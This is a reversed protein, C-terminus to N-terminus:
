IYAKLSEKILHNEPNDLISNLFKTTDDKLETLKLQFERNTKILKFTSIAIDFLQRNNSNEIKLASRRYEIIDDDGIHTTSSVDNKDNSVISYTRSCAPSSKYGDSEDDGDDEDDDDTLFSAYRSM